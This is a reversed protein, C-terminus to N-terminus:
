HAGGSNTSCRTSLNDLYDKNAIYFEQVGVSANNCCHGGSYWSGRVPTGNDWRYLEWPTPICKADPDYDPNDSLQSYDKYNDTLYYLIRSDVQNETSSEYIEVLINAHFTLIFHALVIGNWEYRPIFYQIILDCKEIKSDPYDDYTCDQTNISAIEKMLTSSSNYHVKVIHNKVSQRFQEVSEASGDIVDASDIKLSTFIESTTKGIQLVGIGTLSQVQSFCFSCYVTLIFLFIPKM